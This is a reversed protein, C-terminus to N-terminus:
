RLGECVPPRSSDTFMAPDRGVVRAAEFLFSKNYIHDRWRFTPCFRLVFMVISGKFIRCLEFIQSRCYRIFIQNVIFNLASQIRTINSGKLKSGKRRMQHRFFYINFYVFSYKKKYPHSVHDRVNLSSRRSPTNSLLTSLLINPGFLSSVMPPQLFNCLPSSWLKFEEGFKIIITFDLLILRHPRTARM